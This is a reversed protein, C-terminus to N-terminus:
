RPWLWRWADPSPIGGSVLVRRISEAGTAGPVETVLTQLDTNRFFGTVERGVNLTIAMPRDHDEDLTVSGGPGSLTISALLGAWKPQAPLAFAFRSAAGRGDAVQPMSFSLAFLKTGDASRGVIRHPGAAEPMLPPAEVAFAPELYPLGLSDAGGWLLLSPVPAADAVAAVDLLGADNLRYRLAKHFNFDSIWNRGCYSMLDYHEDPSVLRGEGSFDYGWSGSSGDAYPFAGDVGLPGGCPAHQLSLNHGFEHAIVSSSIVSYAGRQGLRGIGAAGSFEGSLLGMYYSTGGELAMIALTQGFLDFGRNSSSVVPSHGAVNLEEVPLLTRTHRLLSDSEPSAEMRAVLEIVVSDPNEEWLFPIFTIEFAPMARVDVALRGTEPIRPTVVLGPDLAGDPDIQIVMELGPRVVDAPVLANQSRALSGENVETPIPGPKDTLDVSHFLQGQLYFSAVVRPIRETNAQSATPFVRLLAEEGGVLSIPRELSQAAQTLYAAAPAWDCDNVRRMLLANLWELFTPELPACLDTGLAYLNVLEGLGALSAPLPGSMEANNNLGLVRLRGLGGLEPPVPGSLRNHGLFLTTLSAAGGLEAPVPGSLDNFSLNLYRISALDGFEAPIAGSLGNGSVDLITLKHLDALRAPLSGSLDNSELHIEELRALEGFRDPIPGSLANHSLGLETLRALDGLEDPIPGHLYNESLQLVELDTLNGLEPPIVGRTFTGNLKLVKLNALNGLEPPIRGGSLDNGILNLEVLESLAVLGPWITGGLGNFTLKLGTVRGQEDANVGHWERLPADTLWNSSNSWRQGEMADYLGELVERDSSPPCDVGTGEHSTLGDLWDRIHPEAPVCLNTGSYRFGDLESLRSMTYPLRGSLEPNNGVALEALARLDGLELPLTGVLGNRSLDVTTVRGLSDARIGHWTGVGPDLWGSSNTWNDGGTVRYLVELVARDSENCYIPETHRDMAGLWAAFSPTDPVCLYPDNATNGWRFVQLALNLLSKPLVGSFSADILDLERLNTLNGFGSPFEGSFNNESLSLSVLNTLGFLNPHVPGSLDNANLELRTLGALRDIWSPFPGSLSNQTLLLHDLNELDGLESPIAGSLKNGSLDLHELSTLRGLEPPIPGSLQNWGLDLVILRGLDGLEAPMPGSLENGLLDIFALATLDGIEPPISGSLGNFHLQLTSVRSHRDTFVGNWEGLPKDSLWNDNNVWDDGGTAEYIAVLAEREDALGAEVRVRARAALEGSTATVTASGNGVATVLGNANVTAVSTDASSWAVSAGDVANGNADSVVASLRATDGLASLVVESPTVQVSAAAQEVTATASGSVSDATATVTASGNGM